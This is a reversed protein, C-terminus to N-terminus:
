GALSWDVTRSSRSVRRWEGMGKLAQAVIGSLFFRYKRLRLSSEFGLGVDPIYSDFDTYVDTDFGTTGSRYLVWYWNQWELWLFNRKEEIFWPIFYEWTSLLLETGHSRDTLGKLNDRGDLRM